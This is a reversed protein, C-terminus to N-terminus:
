AEVVKDVKVEKIEAIKWWHGVVKGNPLGTNDWFWKCPKETPCFVDQGYENIPATYRYCKERRDCGDGFCMSIDAM